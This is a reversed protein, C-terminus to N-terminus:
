GEFFSNRNRADEESIEEKKVFERNIKERKELNYLIIYIVIVAIILVLVAMSFIFLITGFSVGEEIQDHVLPDNDDSDEGICDFGQGFGDGDLDKCDKNTSCFRAKVEPRGETSNCGNVDICVLREKFNECSSWSCSWVPRCEGPAPREGSINAIINEENALNALENNRQERAEKLDEIGEVFFGSAGLKGSIFILPLLASLILFVLIYIGVVEKGEM